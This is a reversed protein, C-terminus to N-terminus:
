RITYNSLSALCQNTKCHCILIKKNAPIPLGETELREQPDYCLVKWCSLFSTEETLLIEQHRSKKACKMFTARDSQLSLNGGIGPITKLYFQQGFKLIGNEKPDECSTVVFVNRVCPELFKSGSLACRGKLSLEEFMRTEPMNASLVVETEPNFIEVLDGFHVFNDYAPSLDVKNLITKQLSNTKQILLEGNEKKDLFDKFMDEKLCLDENWNGVRVSSNYTRVSM